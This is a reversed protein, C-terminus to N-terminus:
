ASTRPSQPPSLWSGSRTLHPVQQVMPPPPVMRAHGVAPGTADSCHAHLAQHPSSRLRVVTRPTTRVPSPTRQNGDAYRRPHGSTATHPAVPPSLRPTVTVPTRPSLQWPQKAPDAQLNSSSAHGALLKM